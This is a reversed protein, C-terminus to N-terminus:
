PKEFAGFWVDDQISKKSGLFEEATRRVKEMSLKGGSWLMLVSMMDDNPEQADIQFEKSLQYCERFGTTTMMDRVQVGDIDQTMFNYSPIGLLDIFRCIDTPNELINCPSIIIFVLGGNAVVNDFLKNFLAPRESLPVFYLCHFLMVADFPQDSGKWSQATEQCFDTDVDPLLQAVRTKFAAMQDADPEVATLKKVNPLYKCVFELEVQGGGCGLMACSKVDSLQPLANNIGAVSPVIMEHQTIRRYVIEWPSSLSSASLEM